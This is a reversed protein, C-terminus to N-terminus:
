SKWSPSLHVALTRTIFPTVFLLILRSQHSACAEKTGWFHLFISGSLVPTIPLYKYPKNGSSKVVSKPLSLCCEQVLSLKPLHLKIKFRPIQCSAIKTKHSVKQYILRSKRNLCKELRGPKRDVMLLSWRSQRTPKKLCLCLGEQGEDEEPDPNLQRPHRRHMQLSSLPYLKSQNPLRARIRQFWDRPKNWSLVLPICFVPPNPPAQKSSLPCFFASKKISLGAPHTGRKLCLCTAM